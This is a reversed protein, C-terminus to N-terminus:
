EGAGFESKLTKYNEANPTTVGKEWMRWTSLSVKAKIAADVQTMGKEERLLKINVTDGRESVMISSSSVTTLVWVCFLVMNRHDKKQTGDLWRKHLIDNIVKKRIIYGIELLCSSCLVTIQASKAFHIELTYLNYDKFSAKCHICEKNKDKVAIIQVMQWGELWDLDDNNQIEIAQELSFRYTDGVGNIYEQILVYESLNDSKKIQDQLFDIMAQIKTKNM